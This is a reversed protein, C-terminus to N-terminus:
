DEVLIEVQYTDRLPRTRLVEASQVDIQDTLLSTFGTGSEFFAQAQAMNQFPADVNVTYIVGGQAPETDVIEVDSGFPIGITEKLVLAVAAEVTGVALGAGFNRNDVEPINKRLADGPANRVNHLTDDVINEARRWIPKSNLRRRVREGVM